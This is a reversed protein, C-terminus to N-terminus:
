DEDVFRGDDRTKNLKQVNKELWGFSEVDHIDFDPVYPKIDLLPTGDIIDVNEIHLKNGEVKNLKIISLGISNPRSPGRMAFVGHEEDDMYPKARLSVKGSKHFHYLLIVHSFGDLDKLGDTYQPYIKVEGKIGDAGKPQIPTGEAEKNPTHIIGIPKYNIEEMNNVM